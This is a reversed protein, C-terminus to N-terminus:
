RGGTAKAGIAFKRWATESQIKRAVVGSVGGTVRTWRRMKM